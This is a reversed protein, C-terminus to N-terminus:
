ALATTLVSPITAVIAAAWHPTRSLLMWQVARCCKKRERGDHREERRGTLEPHVRAPEANITPAETTPMGHPFGKYTKLTGHKLSKASLLGADAYPVIQDDDGRM